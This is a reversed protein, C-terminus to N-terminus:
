YEKSLDLNGVLIHAKFFDGVKSPRVSLLLIQAHSRLWETPLGDAMCWSDLVSQPICKGPSVVAGAAAPSDIWQAFGTAKM